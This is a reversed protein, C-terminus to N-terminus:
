IGKRGIGLRPNQRGIACHARRADCPRCRACHRQAVAPLADGCHDSQGPGAPHQGWPCCRAARRHGPPIPRTSFPSAPNWFPWRCFKMANKKEALFARTSRAISFNKTWKSWNSNDRILSLFDFADIEDEERAKRIANLATRLFYASNVGPIEVPYQFALFVGQAAREDPDMDLLDEGRYFVEGATVCYAEHGALVQALTSKGSGNPGMIAHTEGANVALDIGHLIKAGEVGAHLNRIELM